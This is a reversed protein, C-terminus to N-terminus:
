FCLIPTLVNQLTAKGSRFLKGLFFITAVLITSGPAGIRPKLVEASIQLTVPLFIERKKQHPPGLWAGSCNYFRFSVWVPVLTQVVMRSLRPLHM